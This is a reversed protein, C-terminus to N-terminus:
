PQTAKMPPPLSPSISYVAIAITHVPQQIYDTIRNGLVCLLGFLLVSSLETVRTGMLRRMPTM